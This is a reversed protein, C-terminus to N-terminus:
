KGKGNHGDKTNQGYSVKNFKDAIFRPSLHVYKRTMANTKHGLAAQIYKEEVGAITAESAFTHRGRHLPRAIRDPAFNAREMIVKMKKFLYDVSIPGGDIYPFLLPSKSEERRKLWGKLIAELTDNIPPFWHLKTKTRYIEDSDGYDIKKNRLLIRGQKFDLDTPFLHTVESARLGAYFITAMIEYFCDVSEQGEEDMKKCGDLVRIVEDQNLPDPSNSEPEPLKKIKKVVSKVLWDNDVAYNFLSAVIDRKDNVTHPNSPKNLVDQLFAEVLPKEIDQMRPMKGSRSVVFEKFELLASKYKIRTKKANGAKATLFADITMDLYAETFIQNSGRVQCQTLYEDRVREAEEKISQRTNFHRKTPKAWLPVKFCYTHVGPPKYLKVQNFKM